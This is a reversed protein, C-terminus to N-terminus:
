GMKELLPKYEYELVDAIAVWDRQQLMLFLTELSYACRRMCEPDINKRSLLAQTDKLFYNLQSAAEGYM